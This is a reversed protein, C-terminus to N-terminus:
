LLNVGPPQVSFVRRGATRRSAGPSGGFPRAIVRSVGHVGGLLARAAGCAAYLEDLPVTAEHAAVQFVSDASTYVIWDGTRQHAEGLADIIATGSAVRNGLVGRGTRRSFEEIVEPPFGQPYTPFARELVIGCLEWHGTTSDKGPSRPLAVGHAARPPATPSVGAIPRCRGLGWRELNPLHLGGVARAVNGLSDSGADGYAATDPAPGIGVGDLVILAVRTV